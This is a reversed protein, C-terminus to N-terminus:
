TALMAESADAIIEPSQAVDFIASDLHGTLSSEGKDLPQM